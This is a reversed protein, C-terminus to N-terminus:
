GVARFLEYRQEIAERNPRDVRRKPLTLTVGDMEQLGHKLMPGDVEQLIDSRVHVTLNPRVGLINEDYASHHIKCLALGNSVAPVGREDRDPVIHAADLLSVHRLCCVACSSNYARIVRQRFVPQHLRQKSVRESYRRELPSLSEANQALTVQAEDLGIAVQSHQPEDAIIWVPYFPLYMGQQVGFFWILPVRLTHAERLGRNTYHEPNGQYKYRLFGDSGLADEYPARQGDSTYTTLISLAATLGAPKRIGLQNDILPFRRGEFKFDLLEQRHVVPNDPSYRRDLWAM